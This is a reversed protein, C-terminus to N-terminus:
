HEISAANEKTLKDREGLMDGVDAIAKEGDESIESFNAIGKLYHKLSSYLFFSLRLYFPELQVVSVVRFVSYFTMFSSSVFIDQPTTKEESLISM